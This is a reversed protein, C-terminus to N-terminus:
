SIQVSTQNETLLIYEFIYYFYMHGMYSIQGMYSVLETAWILKNVNQPLTLIKFDAGQQSGPIQPTLQTIMQELSNILLQSVFFVLMGQLEGPCPNSGM